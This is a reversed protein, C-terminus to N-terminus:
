GGEIRKAVWVTGPGVVLWFIGLVFFTPNETGMGTLLAASGVVLSGIILIKYFPELEVYWRLYQKM